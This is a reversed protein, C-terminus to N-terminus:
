RAYALEKMPTRDRRALAAAGEAVIQSGLLCAVTGLGPWTTDGVLWFGRMASAHGIAHQNSNRLTLRVGGVAGRPRRTFHAYSRPTAVEIVRAARGLNPYVRRALAILRDGAARKKLAYDDAPLNEWASLECHTSIMVSRWGAPASQLDGASSVSVFMNNGDGLPRDDDHMLQHHTFTQGEVESEPVGLFVVMAGGMAASDRQVYPSLSEAVKPPAIRCTTAAPVASIVQTAQVHGKATHILFGDGRREVKEVESRARLEGGLERYRSALKMWFGRMGGVPRTLGAGRITIGLAANILPASDLTSHVTDEILMSLLAVLARDDRLGCHRLLDGMTWRLYRTLGLNAPGIAGAARVADGLNRIPMSGGRRATRWFVDALRDVMRWFKRHRADDGFVELRHSRWMAQDRFLTVCRHPLWALYGPLFEAELSDIGISKLFRGGVGDPEFDVLTTAGVDFSFGKRRYFGACGGPLSHGELVVTSFGRAALRAATAMGAMGGGIIAMDYM